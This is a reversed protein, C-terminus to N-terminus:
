RHGVVPKVNQRTPSTPAPAVHLRGTSSSLDLAQHLRLSVADRAHVAMLSDRGANATQAWLLDDRLLREISRAFELPDAEVLVGKGPSLALGEVGIPTSVTPLGSLVAKILKRKTGAGTRLPVVSVRAEELYPAVSPVWGIAKMGARDCLARVEDTLANGVIM